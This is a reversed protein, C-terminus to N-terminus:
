RNGAIKRDGGLLSLMTAARHARVAWMVAFGLCDLQKGHEPPEPVVTAGIDRHAGGSLM